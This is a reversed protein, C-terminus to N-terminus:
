MQSKTNENKKKELTMTPKAHSTAKPLRIIFGRVREGRMYHLFQRKVDVNDAPPFCFVSRFVLNGFTIYVLIRCAPTGDDGLRLQIKNPPASANTIFVGGDGGLLFPFFSIRLYFGWWRFRQKAHVTAYGRRLKENVYKIRANRGKAGMGRM